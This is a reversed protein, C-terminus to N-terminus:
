HTMLAYTAAGVLGVRRILTARYYGLALRTTESDADHARKWTPERRIM